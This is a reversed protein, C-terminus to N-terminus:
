KNIILSEKILLKLDATAIVIYQVYIPNLIISFLPSALALGSRYLERIYESIRVALHSTTKSVYISQCRNRQFRYVLSSIMSYYHVSDKFRFFLRKTRTVSRKGPYGPSSNLTQRRSHM